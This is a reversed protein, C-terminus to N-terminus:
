FLGIRAEEFISDPIPNSGTRIQNLEEDMAELCYIPKHYIAREIRDHPVALPPIESNNTVNIKLSEM